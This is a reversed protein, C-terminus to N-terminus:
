QGPGGSCPLGLMDLLERVAAHREARGTDWRTIPACITRAADRQFATMAAAGAPAVVRPVAAVPVNAPLKLATRIRFVSRDALGTVASIQRDSLGRRHLKRVAERREAVTLTRHPAKGDIVRQVAVEDVYSAADITDPEAVEPGEDPPLDLAATM